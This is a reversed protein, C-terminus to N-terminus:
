LGNWVGDRLATKLPSRLISLKGDGACRWAPV